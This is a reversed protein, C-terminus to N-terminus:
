SFADGMDDEVVMAARRAEEELRYQALTKFGPPMGPAANTGGRTVVLMLGVTGDHYKGEARVHRVFSLTLPRPYGPGDPM